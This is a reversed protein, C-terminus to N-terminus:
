WRAGEFECFVLPPRITVRAGLLKALRLRPGATGGPYVIYRIGRRLIEERDWAIRASMEGPPLNLVEVPNLFAREVSLASRPAASRPVILNGATIKRGHVTQALVAAKEFSLDIVAFDGEDEAIQRYFPDVEVPQMRPAPVLYEFLVLVSFFASLARGALAGKEVSQLISRLGFSALVSLCLMMLPFFRTPDRSARLFPLAWHLVHYPLPVETQLSGTLRLYPGLTLLLFGVAAVLWFSSRNRRAEGVGLLSLFLVAIGVYTESRMGPPHPGEDGFE